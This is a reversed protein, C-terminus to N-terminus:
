DMIKTVIKKKINNTKISILGLFTVEPDELYFVLGKLRYFCRNESIVFNTMKWLPYDM